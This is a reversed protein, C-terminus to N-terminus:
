VIMNRVYIQWQINAISNLSDIVLEFLRITNVSINTINVEHFVYHTLQTKLLVAVAYIECTARMTTVNELLKNKVVM